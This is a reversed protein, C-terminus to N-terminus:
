QAPEMVRFARGLSILVLTLERMQNLDRGTERAFTGLMLLAKGVQKESPTLEGKADVKAQLNRLYELARAGFESNFLSALAAQAGIYNNGDRGARFKRFEEVAEMSLTGDNFKARIVEIIPAVEGMIKAARARIAEDSEKVPAALARARIDEASEKVRAAAQEMGNVAMPACLALLAFLKKM